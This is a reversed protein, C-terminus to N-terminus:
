LSVVAVPTQCVYSAIRTIDDFAPEVETDLIGYSRLAQLREAENPHPKAKAPNGSDMPQDLWASESGAQVPESGNRTRLPMIMDFFWRAKRSRAGACQFETM